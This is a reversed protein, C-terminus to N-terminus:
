CLFVFVVFLFWKAKFFKTEANKKDWESSQFLLPHCSFIHFTSKISKLCHPNNHLTISDHSMLKMKCVVLWFHFFNVFINEFSTRLEPHSAIFKKWDKHHFQVPVAPITLGGGWEFNFIEVLISWRLGSFHPFWIGGFM